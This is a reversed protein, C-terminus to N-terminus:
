DVSLEKLLSTLPLFLTLAYLLTASAGIGFLLIAPLLVRIKEAEHRARRRYLAAMHRLGAPLDGQGLGTALLWRLLPPFACRPNAKLAIGPSEGRAVQEALSRAERALGPDGSADACLVVAEGFPVNQELLLALLDAFNAAEFHALMSGMWPFWRLIGGARGPQLSVARGSRVWGAYILVLLLPLAPAWYEASSGLAALTRLAPTVPLRFDQFVAIFRPLVRAVVLTFLTLALTLVILPYWLALGIARRSEAYSRAYNAMGELAVPLRGARLGADVVARYLKPLRAGEAAIAQSLSEGRSMREGLTATIRGLGGPLNRGLEGLGRELPLGVRALAVIEDNLAILQELGVAGVHEPM